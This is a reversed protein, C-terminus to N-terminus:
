GVLSSDRVAGLLLDGVGRVESGFRELGKGRAPPQSGDGLCSKGRMLRDHVLDLGGVSGSM